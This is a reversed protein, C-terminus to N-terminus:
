NLIRADNFKDLAVAVYHHGPIPDFVVFWYKFQDFNTPVLSRRKGAKAPRVVTLYEIGNPGGAL